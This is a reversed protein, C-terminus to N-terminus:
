EPMMFFGCLRTVSDPDAAILCVAMVCGSADKAFEFCLGGGRATRLLVEALSLTKWDEVVGDDVLDLCKRLHDINAAGSVCM